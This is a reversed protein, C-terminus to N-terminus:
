APDVGSPGPMERDVCVVDVSPDFAETAEWGDAALRLDHDGLWCAYLERVAGDDDAALVTLPECEGM